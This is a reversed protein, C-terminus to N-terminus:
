WFPTADTESSFFVASATNSAADDESATDEEFATDEEYVPKDMYVSEDEAGYDSEATNQGDFIGAEGAFVSFPIAWALLAASLLAATWRKWRITVKEGPGEKKM